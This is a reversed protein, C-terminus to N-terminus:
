DDYYLPQEKVLLMCKNLKSESNPLLHFSLQHQWNVNDYTYKVSSNNQSCLM